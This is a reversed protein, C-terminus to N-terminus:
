EASSARYLGAGVVRHDVPFVGLEIDQTVRTTAYRQEWPVRQVDRVRLAVHTAQDGPRVVDQCFASALRGLADAAHVRAIQLRQEYIACSATDGQRCSTRWSALYPDDALYALLARYPPRSLREYASLRQREFAGYLPSSLDYWGEAPLGQRPVNELEQASLPRALLMQESSRPSPAFLSWNQEFYTGITADLLPQFPAKIPHPPVLYAATLAVHTVLVALTFLRV